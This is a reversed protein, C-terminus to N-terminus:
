PTDYQRRLPTPNLYCMTYELRSVCSTIKLLWGVLICDKKTDRLVVLRYYGSQEVTMDM